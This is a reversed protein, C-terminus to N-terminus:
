SQYTIILDVKITIVVFISFYVLLMNSYLGIILDSLFLSLFLVSLSMYINKSFYSSLIAVAIVPTFNPPHPLLRSFVMMLILGLAFIDKKSFNFLNTM